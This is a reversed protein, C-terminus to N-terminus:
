RLAQSIVLSGSVYLSAVLTGWCLKAKERSSFGDNAGQYFKEFSLVFVRFVLVALTTALFFPLGSYALLGIAHSVTLELFILLALSVAVIIKTRSPIDM